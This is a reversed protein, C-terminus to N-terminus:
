TLSRKGSMVFQKQCMQMYSEPIEKKIEALAHQYISRIYDAAIEVPKKPLKTLDQQTYEAPLYHPLDQSPDLLLKVGVVCDATRKVSAGWTFANKDKLDYSIM